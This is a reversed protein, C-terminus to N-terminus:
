LRVGLESIGDKLYSIAETLSYHPVDVGSEHVLTNRLKHAQWIRDYTHPHFKARANKLREGMTDGAILDKLVNDLAKDAVILAHRLSAPNRSKLAVSVSEWDREINAVTKPSVSYGGGGLLKGILNSVLNAIM